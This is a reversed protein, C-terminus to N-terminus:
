PKLLKFIKEVHVTFVKSFYEIKGREKSAQTPFHTNKTQLLLLYIPIFLRFFIHNALFIEFM